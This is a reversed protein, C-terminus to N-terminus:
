GTATSPSSPASSPSSGGPTRAFTASAMAETDIEGIRQDALDVARNVLEAQKEIATATQRKGQGRFFDALAEDFANHMQLVVDGGLSEGFEADSVGQEEAQPQVIAYVVDCLLMIDLSLRTMLPQEGEREPADVRLLDVGVLDKVRRVAGITINLRWTRGQMDKFAPM